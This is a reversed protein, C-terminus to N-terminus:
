KGGPRLCNLIDPFGIGGVNDVVVDVSDALETMVQAWSGSGARGTLVRDAVADQLATRWTVACHALDCRLAGPRLATRWTAVRYYSAGVAGTDRRHVFACATGDGNQRAIHMLRELACAIPASRLLRVPRSPRRMRALRGPTSRQTAVGHPVTAVRRTRAGLSRVHEAKEEACIATVTAGRRRALQVVASGVGGTGCESGGSLRLRGGRVVVAVGCENPAQGSRVSPM